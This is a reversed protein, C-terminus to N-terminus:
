LRTPCHTLVLPSQFRCTSRAKRVVFGVVATVRRIDTLISFTTKPVPADVRFRQQRGPSCEGCRIRPFFAGSPRYPKCRLPASVADGASAILWPRWSRESAGLHENRAV